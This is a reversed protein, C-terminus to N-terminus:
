ATEVDLERLTKPLGNLYAQRALSSKSVGAKKAIREANARESPMLRLAIPKTKEIGDPNRRTTQHKM